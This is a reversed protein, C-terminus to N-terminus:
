ALIRPNARLEQDRAGAILGGFRPGFMGKTHENMAYSSYFSIAPLQLKAAVVRAWLCMHDYIIYDAGERGLPELVQPLV